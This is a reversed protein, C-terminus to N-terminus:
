GIDHVLVGRKQTSAMEELRVQDEERAESWGRREGVCLGLELVM